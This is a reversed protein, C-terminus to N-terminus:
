VEVGVQVATVLGLVKPVLNKYNLKGCETAVHSVLSFKFLRSVLALLAVQKRIRFNYKIVWKSFYEAKKLCNKQEAQLLM